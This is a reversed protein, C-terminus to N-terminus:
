VYVCLLRNNKDESPKEKLKLAKPQNAYYIGQKGLEDHSKKRVETSM